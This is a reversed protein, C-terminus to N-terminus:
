EHAPNVDFGDITPIDVAGVRRKVVVWGIIAERLAGLADAPNDGDAMAGDLGIVSAVWVGPDVERVRAHRLAADTYFEIIRLPLGEVIEITVAEDFNAESVSIPVDPITFDLSSIVERDRDDSWTEKVPGSHATM